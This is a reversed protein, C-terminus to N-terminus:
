FVFNNGNEYLKYTKSFENERCIESRFINGIYKKFNIFGNSLKNYVDISAKSHTNQIATIIDM